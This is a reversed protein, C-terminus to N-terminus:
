QDKGFVCFPLLGLKIIEVFAIRDEADKHIDDFNFTTEFHPDDDKYAFCVISNSNFGFYFSKFHKAVRSPTRKNGPFASVVDGFNMCRCRVIQVGDPQDGHFTKAFINEELRDRLHLTLWM